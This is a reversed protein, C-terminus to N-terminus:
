VLAQLEVQKKSKLDKNKMKGRQSSFFFLSCEQLYKHESPLLLSEGAQHQDLLLEVEVEVLFQPYNPLGTVEM